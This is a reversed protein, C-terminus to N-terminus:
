TLGESERMKKLRNTLRVQKVNENFRARWNTLSYGSLEATLASKPLTLWRVTIDYLGAETAYHEFSKDGNMAADLIRLRLAERASLAFDPSPLDATLELLLCIEQAEDIVSLDPEVAVGNQQAEYAYDFRKRMRSQGDNLLPKISHWKNSLSALRDPARQDREIQICLLDQDNLQALYDLRTELLVEHEYKEYRRTLHDLQARLSQAAKESVDSFSPLADLAQLYQPRLKDLDRENDLLAEIANLRQLHAELADNKAQKEAARQQNHAEFVADCVTKFRNWLAQEERQKKLGLTPSWQKQLGKIVEIANSTDENALQAEAQKILGERRQREREREQELYNDWQTSIKDYAKKAKYYQKDPLRPFERWIKEFKKNAEASAKWNPNSWDFSDLHRQIENLFGLREQLLVNAVRRQAEFYKACPEWAQDGLTKFEEWLDQPAKGKVEKWRQQLMKVQDAKAEIHIEENDVLARMTAILNQRVQEDGFQQWRKLESLHGELRKFRETVGERIWKSVGTESDLRQKITQHIEQAKSVEGKELAEAFAEVASAVIEDNETQKNKQLQTKAYLRKMLETFDQDAQQQASADLPELAQWRKEQEELVDETLYLQSDLWRQCQILIDQHESAQQKSAFHHNAATNTRSLAKEFRIAFERGEDCDWPLLKEWAQQQENMQADFDARSGTFKGMRIQEELKSVARLIHQRSSRIKDISLAKEKLEELSQSFGELTAAEVTDQAEVLSKEAHIVASLSLTQAQAARALSELQQELTTTSHHCSKLENLREKSARYLKKKKNKYTNLIEKLTDEDNIRAIAHVQTDTYNSQNVLAYLANDSSLENLFSQRLRESKANAAIAIRATTSLKARCIDMLYRDGAQQCLQECLKEEIEVLQTPSSSKLQELLQGIDTVPQSVDSAQSVPHPEAVESPTHSQSSTNDQKGSFWKSFIGM